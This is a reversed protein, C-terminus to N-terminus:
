GNKPAATSKRVILKEQLIVKKPKQSGDNNEIQELVMEAATKGIEETPLAMTTLPPIVDEVPYANSFTAVSLDEPVKIGADWLLQLVKVATFHTFVVLATPKQQRVHKVLADFSQDAGLVRETLGAQRMVASYGEIRRAISYHAPQQGVYFSIQRHGLGILYQTLDKAGQLDDPNVMSLPLETEANVLVVPLRSRELLAPMPEVIRSLILCGDMRQDLFIQNWDDPNPGLPAFLLHYRRAILVDNIGLMISEYNGRIVVRMPPAYIIGITYTRRNALARARWNPRYGLKEAVERVRKKTDPPVRNSAPSENLIISVTTKSVGSSNAVDMITPRKMSTIISM